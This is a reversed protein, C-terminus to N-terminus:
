GISPQPHQNGAVRETDSPVSGRPDLDRDRAKIRPNKDKRIM